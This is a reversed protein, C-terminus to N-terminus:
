AHLEGCGVAGQTHALFACQHVATYRNDVGVRGKDVAVNFDPLVRNNVGVGVKLALGNDAFVAVYPRVNAERIHSDAVSNSRLEAIAVLRLNAVAHRETRVNVNAGARGNAFVNFM